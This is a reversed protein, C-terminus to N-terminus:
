IFKYRDSFYTEFGYFGSIVHALHQPDNFEDPSMRVPGEEAENLDFVELFEGCRRYKVTNVKNDALVKDRM